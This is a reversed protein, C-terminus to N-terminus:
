SAWSATLMRLWEKRKDESIFLDEKSEKSMSMLEPLHDVVAGRLIQACGRPIDEDFGINYSFFSMIESNKNDFSVYSIGENTYKLECGCMDAMDHVNFYVEYKKVGYKNNLKKIFTDAKNITLKENSALALPTCLAGAAVLMSTNFSRRDM